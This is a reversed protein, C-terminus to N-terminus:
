ACHGCTGRFWVTAEQVTFEVEADAAVRTAHLLKAVTDAPVELDFIEGCGNCIAHHHPEVNPDFFTQGRDCVVRNVIGVQEFVELNNYVTALSLSAEAGELLGHIDQPTLHEFHECFLELLTVRQPTIKFGAGRLKEVSHDFFEAKLAERSVADIAHAM